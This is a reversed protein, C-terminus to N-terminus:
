GWWWRGVRRSGTEGTPIRGPPLAPQMEDKVVSDMSPTLHSLLLCLPRPQFLCLALTSRLPLSQSLGTLFDSPPPPSLPPVQCDEAQRSPKKTLPGGNTRRSCPGWSQSSVLNSWVDLDGEEALLRLRSFQWSRQGALCESEVGARRGAQRTVGAQQASVGWAQGGAQHSWGAPCPAFPREELFSKEWKGASSGRGGM